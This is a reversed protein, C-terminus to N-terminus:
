EYSDTKFHLTLHYVGSTGDDDDSTCIFRVYDTKQEIISISELKTKVFQDNEKLPWYNMQNTNLNIRGIFSGLVEGDQYVDNTAEVSSTFFLYEGDKSLCAGSFGSRFADIEPLYFILTEINPIKNESLYRLFEEKEIRFIFNKHGINGRNLIFFHDMAYAFGEINIQQLSDFDGINLFQNYLTRINFKRILQSKELNFIFISDRFNVKSGSSLILLDNKFVALSEFDAKESKVVRNNFMSDAASIKYKQILDLNMDFQFLYPSDDGVMWIENNVVVVGSASPIETMNKFSDIKLPEEHHQCSIMFLTPLFLLFLRRM